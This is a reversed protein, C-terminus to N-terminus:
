PYKWEPKYAPSYLASRPFLSNSGIKGDRATQKPPTLVLHTERLGEFYHLQWEYTVTEVPPKERKIVGGKDDKVVGSVSKPTVTVKTGDVKYTGSEEVIYWQPKQFHGGWSELRFTYTGNTNFVYQRKQSGHSMKTTPDTSTAGAAWTGAISSQATQAPATQTPATPPVVDTTTVAISDIVTNAAPHCATIGSANAAMIAVSGVLGGGRVVVLQGYFEQQADRLKAGITHKTLKRKTEKAPYRNVETAKFPTQIVDRWERGVDAELDNTAARPEYVGILCFSTGDIRTYGFRGQASEVKYGEPPTFSWAGLTEGNASEVLITALLVLYLWRM